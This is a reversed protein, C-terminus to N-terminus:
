KLYFPMGIEMSLAMFDGFTSDGSYAERWSYPAPLSDEERKTALVTFDMAQFAILLAAAVCLVKKVIKTQEGEACFAAMVAAILIIGFWLIINMMEMPFSTDMRLPREANLFLSQFLFSFGAGLSVGAAGIGARTPLLLMLCTLVLAAGAATLLSLAWVNGTVFDPLSAHIYNFPQFVLVTLVLFLNCAAITGAPKRQVPGLDKEKRRLLFAMVCLLAFFEASLLIIRLTNPYYVYIIPVENGSVIEKLYVNLDIDFRFMSYVAPPVPIVWEMSGAPIVTRVSAEETVGAGPLVYFVQTNTNAAVPEVFSIRIASVEEETAYVVFQPDVGTYFVEGGYIAVDHLGFAEHGDTFIPSGKVETGTHDGASYFLFDTGFACCVAIVLAIVPLIIKKM